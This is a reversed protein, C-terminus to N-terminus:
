HCFATKFPGSASSFTYYLYAANMAVSTVGQIGPCKNQTYRVPTPIITAPKAIM